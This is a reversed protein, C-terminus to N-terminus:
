GHWELVEIEAIDRYGFSINMSTIIGTITEDWATTIQILDGVREGQLIIKASVKGRSKIYNLIDNRKDIPTGNGNKDFLTGRLEFKDFTIENIKSKIPAIPNTITTQFTPYTIEFVPISIDADESIFDVYNSSSAFISINSPLSLVDVESPKTFLCKTRVNAVNKAEINKYEYSYSTQVQKYNASTVVKEKNFIADGIIRNSEIYSTIEAPIPKLLLKDARSGDVMFRSAFAATCLAYRATNIPINGFLGYHSLDETSDIAVGTIDQIRSVVVDFNDGCVFDAYQAEELRKISNYCTLSYINKAVREINSIYFTGYYLSNSYIMLASDEVFSFDDTIIDINLSNMPLDDSLVNIEELVECRKFRDFYRFKGLSISSIKILQDNFQSVFDRFQLSYTEVNLKFKAIGRKVTVTDYFLLQTYENRIYVDFSVCSSDYFEIAIERETSFPFASTNIEIIAPSTRDFYAPAAILGVYDGESLFVKKDDILDLGRGDFSLYNPSNNSHVIDEIGNSITQFNSLASTTVDPSMEYSEDLVKLLVSM